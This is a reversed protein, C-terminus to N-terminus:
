THAHTQTYADKHSRTVQDISIVNYHKLNEDGLLDVMKCGSLSGPGGCHVAITGKSAPQVDAFRMCAYVQFCASMNDTERVCSLAYRETVQMSPYGRDKEWGLTPTLFGCTQSGAKVENSNVWKFKSKDLGNKLFELPQAPELVPTTQIFDRVRKLADQLDSIKSTHLGVSLGIAVAAMAFAVVNFASIREKNAM